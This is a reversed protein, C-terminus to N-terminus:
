LEFISFNRSNRPVRTFSFSKRPYRDTREERISLLKESSSESTTEIDLRILCTDLREVFEIVIVLDHEVDASEEWMRFAFSLLQLPFSVDAVINHRNDELLLLCREIRFADSRLEQVNIEDDRRQLFIGASVSDGDDM